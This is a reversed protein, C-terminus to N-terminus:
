ANWEGSISGISSSNRAIASPSVNRRGWTATTDFRVPPRTVSSSVSGPYQTEWTRSATRKASPTRVSASSPTVRNTSTPGAATRVASAWCVKSM